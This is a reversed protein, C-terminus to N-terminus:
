LEWVNKQFMLCFLLLFSCWDLHTKIHYAIWANVLEWSSSSSINFFFFFFFVKKFSCYSTGENTWFVHILTHLYCSYSTYCRDHFNHEFLFHSPHVMMDNYWWLRIKQNLHLYLPLKWMLPGGELYRAQQMCPLDWVLDGPIDIMLTSLWSSGSEAIGRQWSSGHWRPGGPGRKGEVTHWLSDQSCWQLMGCTWVLLAKEGESHPGSGWHWAMCTAWQVQHYCHRAAQRQLDTQDNGQWEAASTPPKAKDIALDWQYTAKCEACLLQVCPWSLSTAPLSFQYCSRSSRRPPKWTNHNFTWLWRSSLAHRGPLLLFSGGGAQWTWSPSGETFQWGLPTCNGPVTYMQLWPGKDLAQAWQM